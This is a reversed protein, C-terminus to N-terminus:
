FFFNLLREGTSLGWVSVYQTSSEEGLGCFRGMTDVCGDQRGVGPANKSTYM